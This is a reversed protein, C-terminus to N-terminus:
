LCNGHLIAKPLTSHSVLDNILFQIYMAVITATVSTIKCKSFHSAGVLYCNKKIMVTRGPTFSRTVTESM